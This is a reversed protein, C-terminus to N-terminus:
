PLETLENTYLNRTLNFHRVYKKINIYVLPKSKCTVIKNAVKFHNCLVAVGREKDQIVTLPCSSGPFNASGSLFKFGMVQYLCELNDKNKMVVFEGCTIRNTTDSKKEDIFRRLRDCSVRSTKKDLMYLISTKRIFYNSDVRRFALFGAPAEVDQPAPQLNQDSQNGDLLYDLNTLFAKDAAVEQLVEIEEATPQEPPPEVQSEGPVNQDEILEDLDSTKLHNNAPLNCLVFDQNWAFRLQRMDDKAAEFAKRVIENIEADSSLTDAVHCHKTKKTNFDFDTLSFQNATMKNLRKAKRLLDLVDFNIITSFTSTMSRYSRFTSECPQSGANPLLFLEPRQMDRCWNHFLILNHANIEICTHLNSSIFNISVSLKLEGEKSGLTAALNLYEKWLRCFMAVYWASYIRGAPLTFPDIYATIIHRTLMLYLRTALEEPRTLKDTVRKSCVREALGFNMNDKNETLDLENIGLIMKPFKRTLEILIGKCAVAQNSSGLKLTKTMLARHAKVVMHIFDQMSLYRVDWKASFYWRCNVPRRDVGRTKLPIESTEKM